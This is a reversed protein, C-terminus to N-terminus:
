VGDPSHGEGRLIHGLEHAIVYGMVTGTEDTNASTYFRAVRDYFVYVLPDYEPSDLATGMVDPKVIKPARNVVWLDIADASVPPVVYTFRLKVGARSYLDRATRESIKWVAVAAPCLKGVHVTVENNDQSQALLRQQASAARAPGLGTAALLLIWAARQM